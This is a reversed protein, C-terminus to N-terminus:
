VIENAECKACSGKSMEEGGRKRRKIKKPWEAKREEM